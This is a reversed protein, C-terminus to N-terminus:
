KIASFNDVISVYMYSRFIQDGKGIPRIVKCILRGDVFFCFVNPVCSHNIYCGFPYMANAFVEFTYKQMPLRSDEQTYENLEYAHEAIHFLHLILHQLFRQYQLTSYKRIFESKRMLTVIAVNTASRLRNLHELELKNHRHVLQFLAAFEREKNNTVHMVDHGNLLMDVLIMLNEVNTFTKDIKIFMKLVLDFTETQSLTGPRNCEYQHDSKRRCNDDCFLAGVCYTCTIFNMCEKFCFLCRKRGKDYYRKHIIAYPNEVLITQGVKLDIATIVHRGFEENNQIILCDAVGNFKAHPNFSLQPERVKFQELQFWEKNMLSKCKEARENLKSLLTESPNFKKALEIDILAEKYMNLEFFCAARNSFAVGIDPSGNEGASLCNSFHNMAEFYEGKGYSSRGYDRAIKSFTNNKQYKPLKSEEFLDNVVKDVHDTIIYSDEVAFIDIYLNSNPTNELQWLINLSM